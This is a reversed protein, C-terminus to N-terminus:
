KVIGDKRQKAILEVGEVLGAAYDVGSVGSLIELGKEKNTGEFRAVVPKNIGYEEIAARIGGAVEDCRTIGGFINIFVQKIEKECSIIRVAERIREATAGGGLDLTARVTIGKTALADMCSMLMGSGNSMVAVDGSMDCPIYLFNFKEAEISLEHREFTAAYDALDPHRKMASDDVTVKGDIAIFGGDETPSLPNIECLLCDYECFLRYFKQLLAYFEKSPNLYRAHYDRLGIVPNIPVRKVAEPHAEIDMGGQDCYLIVPCNLARDLTIALYIESMIPHAYTVLAKKVEHGKISMGIIDSAAKKAAEKDKCFKIGGAKGRGGTPVQAKIMVPYEPMGENDLEDASTIIPGNTAAIGYQIFLQKARYEMLDM